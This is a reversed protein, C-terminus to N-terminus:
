SHRYQWNFEGSHLSTLCEATGKGMAVVPEARFSLIKIKGVIEAVPEPRFIMKVKVKRIM